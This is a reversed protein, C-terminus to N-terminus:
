NSCKVQLLLLLLLLVLLFMLLLKHLCYITHDLFLRNTNISFLQIYQNFFPNSNNLANSKYIMWVNLGRWIDDMLVSIELFNDFLHTLSSSSSPFVIAFSAWALNVSTQAQSEDYLATPVILRLVGYWNLLRFLHTRIFLFEPASVQSFWWMWFFNNYTGM